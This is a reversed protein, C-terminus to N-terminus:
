IKGSSESALAAPNLGNNKQEKSVMINYAPYWFSPSTLDPTPPLPHRYPVPSKGSFSTLTTLEANQDERM